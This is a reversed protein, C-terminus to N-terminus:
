YDPFEGAIALAHGFSPLKELPQGDFNYFNYEANRLVRNARSSSGQGHLELIFIPHFKRIVRRAGMLVKGEEGEVDLKIINPPPHNDRFVFADLYTTPVTIVNESENKTLKGMSPSGRSQFTEKGKVNSLAVQFATINNGFNNLRINYKLREYNKPNPEFSYVRCEKGVIRTAILSFFGIYAGIDYFTLGPKLNDKLYNQIEIEHIGLWYYKETQLNLNMVIGSGIGGVISVSVKDSPLAFNLLSRSLVQLIPLSHVSRILKYPLLQALKIFLGLGRCSRRPKM